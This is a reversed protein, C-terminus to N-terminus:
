FTYIVAAKGIFGPIPPVLKAIEVEGGVIRPWRLRVEDAFRVAVTELLRVPRSMVDVLLDYVEAYSVTAGLSDAEADFGNADIRLRVNVCYQNGCVREEPLVGHCAHIMVDRLEIDFFSM